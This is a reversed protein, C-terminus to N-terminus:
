PAPMARPPTRRVHARLSRGKPRVAAPHPHPGRPSSVAFLARCFACAPANRAQGKRFCPTHPRSKQLQCKKQWSKRCFVHWRDPRPAQAKPELLRRSRLLIRAPVYPLFRALRRLGRGKQRPTAERFLWLRVGGGNSGFATREASVDPASRGAGHGRWLSPPGELNYGYCGGRIACWVPGWLGILGACAVVGPAPMGYRWSGRDIRQGYRWSGRDIRQHSRESRESTRAAGGGARAREARAHSRRVPQCPAQAFVRLGRALRRGGHRERQDSTRRDRSGGRGRRQAEPDSRPPTATTIPHPHHATTPEKYTRQKQESPRQSNNRGGGGEL